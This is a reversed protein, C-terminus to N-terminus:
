WNVVVQLYDWVAPKQERQVPALQSADPGEQGAASARRGGAPSKPGEAQGPASTTSTTSTTPGSFLIAQLDLQTDPGLMPQLHSAVRLLVRVRRLAAAPRWADQM